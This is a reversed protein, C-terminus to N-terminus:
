EIPIHKAKKKPAQQQKHYLRLKLIGNEYRAEIHNEDTIDALQYHREFASFDYEQQIYPTEDREITTKHSARVSLVGNAVDIQIEDKNFGPLAIEMDYYKEHEKVNTPPYPIYHPRRSLLTDRGGTFMQERNLLDRSKLYRSLM